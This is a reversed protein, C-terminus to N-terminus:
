SAMTPSSASRKPLSGARARAAGNERPDGASRSLARVGANAVHQNGAAVREAQGVFPQDFGNCGDARDLRDLDHPQARAVGHGQRLADRVIQERRLPRLGSAREVLAFVFDEPTDFHTHRERVYDSM